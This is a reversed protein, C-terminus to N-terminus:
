RVNACSATVSANTPCWVWVPRSAPAPAIAVGAVDVLGKDARDVGAILPM